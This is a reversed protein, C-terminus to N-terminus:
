RPRVTLVVLKRDYGRLNIQMDKGNDKSTGPVVEIEYIPFQVHEGRYYTIADFYDKGVNVACQYERGKFKFEPIDGNELSAVSTIFTRTKAGKMNLIRQGIVSMVKDYQRDDADTCVDCVCKDSGGSACEKLYDDSNYEVIIREM